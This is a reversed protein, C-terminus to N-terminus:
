IDRASKHNLTLCITRATAVTVKFILTHMLLPESIEHKQCVTIPKQLYSEHQM